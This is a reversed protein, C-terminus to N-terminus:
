PTVVTEAKHRQISLQLELTYTSNFPLGVSHVASAVDGM